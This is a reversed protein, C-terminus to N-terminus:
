YHSDIYDMDQKISKCLNNLIAETTKIGAEYLECVDGQESLLTYLKLVERIGDIDHHKRVLVPSKTEISKKVEGISADNFKRITSITKSLSASKIVCIHITNM